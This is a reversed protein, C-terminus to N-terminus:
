STKRATVLPTFIDLQMGALMAMPSCIGHALRVITNPKIRPGMAAYQIGAYHPDLSPTERACGCLLSASAIM